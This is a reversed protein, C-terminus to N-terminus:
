SFSSLTSLKTYLLQSWTKMGQYCYHFVKYPFNNQACKQTSSNTKVTAKKETAQITNAGLKGYIM